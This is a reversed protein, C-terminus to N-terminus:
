SLDKILVDLADVVAYSAKSLDEMKEMARDHEGRQKLLLIERGVAHVIKHPEVIGAFSPMRLIKPDKVADYWQGFRCMHHDPLSTGEMSKRGILVDAINKKFLIHDNKAIELIATGGLNAFTGIQNTVINNLKDMQDLTKQIDTENQIASEAISSTGKAVDNAAATQQTLIAAVEAMHGSVGRVQMSIEELQKGLGSVVGEGEKVATVSEEMSEVIVNTRVHLDSIRKEIDETASTTQTALAKVEAAVVAFGKGAEGARAAEITANLALLNTQDAINKIQSVIEGIRDSELALAKVEEAAQNATQSIKKMSDVGQQSLSLGEGASKEATQSDENVSQTRESIQSVSTVLEEVASAMSQTQASSVDVSHKMNGLQIVGECSELGIEVLNTLTTAQCSRENGRSRFLGSFIGM